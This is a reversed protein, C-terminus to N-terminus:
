FRPEVTVLVPAHDSCEADRVSHPNILHTDSVRYDVVSALSQDYDHHFDKSLLIYDLASGRNAFYHTPQRAGTNPAAQIDYADYLSYRQIERQDALPMGDIFQGNLKDIQQSDVLPQLAASEITDNLDGMVVVPLPQQQTHRVLDHYLVAAETGRQIASAWRGQIDSLLTNAMDVSAADSEINMPRKSKLHVVYVVVRSFNDIQIVARIPPRSFSFGPALGLRRLVDPRISVSESSVIPYRSALAVVPSEYIYQSRKIPTSVTVFYPYEQETVLTKLAEPSFVEQFGVIDPSLVSM